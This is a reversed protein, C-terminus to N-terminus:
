AIGASVAERAFFVRSAKRFSATANQAFVFRSFAVVAVNM